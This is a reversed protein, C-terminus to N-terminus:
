ARRREGALDDDAADIVDGPRSGLPRSLAVAGLWKAGLGLLLSTALGFVAFLGPDDVGAVLDVVVAAVLAGVVIAVTRTM